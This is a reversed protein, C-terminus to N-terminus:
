RSRNRADARRLVVTMALVALVVPTAVLALEVGGLGWPLDFVFGAVVLLVGLVLVGILVLDTRPGRRSVVPANM